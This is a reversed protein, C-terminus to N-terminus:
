LDVAYGSTPISCHHDVEASQQAALTLDSHKMRNGKAKM